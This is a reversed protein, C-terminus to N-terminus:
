LKLAKEVADSLKTIHKDFTFNEKVRGFVEESFKDPNKLVLSIKNAFDVVDYPKALLAENGLIYKPGAKNWAVVPTQNAMAEIIGLGFDEEVATYVYCAANAYLVKIEAEKILGVFHVKDVLGLEAVLEKLSSTYSTSRGTVVLSVNPVEKYILPLALVAYEFKKQPFHRNTLLLYPKQIKQRRIKLSGQLRNNNKLFKTEVGAPNNVFNRGYVRKLVSQIYAGNAFAIKAMGISISDAWVIFPRFIRTLFTFVNSRKHVWLGTELDVKRPYLVRTPQALYIFYPKHLIKSLVFAFWPGPQNAGFFIDYKLFRWFVFPVFLCSALIQLVERHYFWTPLQPLLTKIPYNDIIDPFSTKKNFVTTYCDVEFGAKRLGDIEQLVLKEGGGSYFFGFHFIAIRAKIM